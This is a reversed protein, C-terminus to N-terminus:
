VLTAAGEMGTELQLVLHSERIITGVAMHVTALAPQLTVVQTVSQIM